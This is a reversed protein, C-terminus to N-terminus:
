ESLFILQMDCVQLYHYDIKTPLYDRHIYALLEADPDIFYM